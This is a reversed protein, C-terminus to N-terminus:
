QSIPGMTKAGGEAEAVPAATGGLSIGEKAAFDALAQEALATQESEKMQIGSMDISDKAVRARGSAKEREEEVMSHLRELTDGSGGIQSIMGSAMESLEATAKKVKLDSLAFRLKEIKDKAARISVDRAKILDKYTKDAAEAQQRNEALERSVTQLQLALQGALDKNGARLNATTRARLEQEQAELRKVQGILREAMGAHAALGQNYQAIQARLNEKEVELLAEPNRKEIGSVFLSLFGRFLNALRSFM